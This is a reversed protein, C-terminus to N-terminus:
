QGTKQRLIEIAMSMAPDRRAAVDSNAFVPVEVDPPIGTGDFITGEPTRFVENPLGFNWGNPLSRGLVDSFVGQTNEGTRIVHPTRGMLAQTFTEGASITHPGTLEVVPGRFSPRSSPHVISKDGPTWKNRDDADARAQKIYAVYDQTALRSAIELGYPDFGGSNLRVDIILAKLKADSFIQDLASQLEALGAAFGGQESYRSFRPIRLYGINEDVHGYQLQGNCFKLLPTKFYAQDTIGLLLPTENKPFAQIDGKILHDTGPRFSTFERKLDPAEIFTHRNHFPEIMGQFIDFLGTPSTDATIKLRNKEVVAGWDIAAQDFLIYNETWTRVFVEFNGAPTNPTPHECAAPLQPIRDIRVDSASGETHMTKHDASGGSRVFFVDGDPTKFTAERGDSVTGDRLATGGGVCTSTTLEFTKLNSGQIQFVLGYGESRWIGDLSEARISAIGLAVGILLISSRILIGCLFASITAAIRCDRESPSREKMLSLQQCCIPHSPRDGIVSRALRLRLM